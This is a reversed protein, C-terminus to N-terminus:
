EDYSDVWETLDKRCDECLDITRAMAGTNDEGTRHGYKVKRLDEGAYDSGTLTKKNVTIPGKEFTGCRDCKYYGDTM